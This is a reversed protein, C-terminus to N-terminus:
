FKETLFAGCITFCTLLSLELLLWCCPKKQSAKFISWKYYLLKSARAYSSLCRYWNQCRGECFFTKRNQRETEVDGFSNMSGQLCFYIILILQKCLCAISSLNLCFTITQPILTFNENFLPKKHVLQVRHCLKYSKSNSLRPVLRDIHVFKLNLSGRRM